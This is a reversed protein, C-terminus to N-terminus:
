REAPLFAVSQIVGELVIAEETMTRIQLDEGTFRVWLKGAGVTIIGEEYEQIGTCGILSAERNGSFELHFVEPLVSMPIDLLKAVKSEASYPAAPEKGRRSGM